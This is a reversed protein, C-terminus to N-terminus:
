WINYPLLSQIVCLLDQSDNSDRHGIQMTIYAPYSLRYMDCAFKGTCVIECNTAGSNMIMEFEIVNASQQRQTQMWKYWVTYLQRFLSKNKKFLIPTSIFLCGNNVGIWHHQEPNPWTTVVALSKSYLEEAVEKITTIIGDDDSTAYM